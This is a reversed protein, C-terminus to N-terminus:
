PNCSDKILAEIGVTFKENKLVMIMEEVILPVWSRNAHSWRPGTVWPHQSYGVLRDHIVPIGGGDRRIHGLTYRLLGPATLPSFFHDLPLFTVPLICMGLRRVAESIAATLVGGPPRFFRSRYDAMGLADGIARDTRLLDAEVVTASGFLFQPHAYSHNVILHGDNVMRRVLAPHDQAHVGPLCFCATVGHRCLVDLLRATIDDRPNPGDDFTLIVTRPPLGLSAYPQIITKIGNM